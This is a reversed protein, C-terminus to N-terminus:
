RKSRGVAAEPEDMEPEPAEIDVDIQEESDMDGMDDMGLDGGMDAGADMGGLGADGGVGPTLSNRAAEMTTKAATLAAQLQTLSTTAQQNFQDAENVGIESEISTKLAPLEKVLMDSVDEIMKQMSDVMDQAALITQSKDVEENEVIIKGSYEPRSLLDTRHTSLAQEMFVLKMYAHSQHDYKGSQKAEKMLSRIKQLMQVTEQLGLKDLKLSVSYQDKLAQSAVRKSDFDFDTLKM